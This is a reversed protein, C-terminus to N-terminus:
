AAPYRRVIVAQVVLILLWTLETRRPGVFPLLLLSSLMVGVGREGAAM